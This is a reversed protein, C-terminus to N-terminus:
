KNIEELLAKHEQSYAQFDLAGEEKPQQGQWLLLLATVALIVVVTLAKSM